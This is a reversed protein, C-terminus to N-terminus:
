TAGRQRGFDDATSVRDHKQVCADRIAPHPAVLHTFYARTELGNGIVSSAKSFGISFCLVM